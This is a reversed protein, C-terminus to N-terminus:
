LSGAEWGAEAERGEQPRQRDFLYIFDKFFFLFLFGGTLTAIFESDKYPAKKLFVNKPQKM